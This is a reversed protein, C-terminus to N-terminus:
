SDIIIAAKTGDHFRINYHANDRHVENGIDPHVSTPRDGTPQWNSDFQRPGYTLDGRYTGDPQKWLPNSHGAESPHVPMRSSNIHPRLEPMHNILARAEAVSSVHVDKGARLDEIQERQKRTPGKAENCLGFPDWCHVPNTGYAYLNLGGATGIPDPSIYKGTDPDYYRHRNYHLGSEKDEYQGPFRFNCTIRNTDAEFARGWGSFASSWAKNGKDDLIEMPTGLQDSVVSYIRGGEVAYIPTFYGPEYVWTSITGTPKVEHIIVNGDWYFKTIEDGCRKAIRRGFPDYEYHWEKGDPDTLRVLQDDANWRYSWELSKGAFESSIKRILRGNGDYEFSTGDKAIVQNGLSHSFASKKEGSVLSALNGRADYTFFEAAGRDREIRVLHESLDFAYRTSGSAMDTTEDLLGEKSYSFRRHPLEVKAEGSPYSDDVQAVKSEILRGLADFRQSLAVFGPLRRKLLDGYPNRETSFGEGNIELEEFYGNANNKFNLTLGLSTTKQIPMRNIDLRSEVSFEGVTEKILEGLDNYEFSVACSGNEATTMNGHPGYAFKSVRGDPLTKGVLRGALDYELSIREQMGNIIGVQNGSIDYIFQLVRGDPGKEEIVRVAKDHKFRYASGNEDIKALLQGPESGWEFKITSGDPRHESLIRSCTGYAFKWSKEGERRAIINGGADYEYSILTGDAYKLHLVRGLIDRKYQTVNGLPGKKASLRGFADMEYSTENGMWDTSVQLDGNQGYGKRRISGSPSTISLINGMTDYAFTWKLGSPDATYLMRGVSDYEYKWIKGLPDEITLPHHNQNFTKKISQGTPGTVRYRNGEADYEYKTSGAGASIIEVIRGHEDYATKEMGGFPDIALIVQGSPLRQYKTTGGLSNTVETWGIHDLYRIVKLDYNGLGWTRICRGKEDYKYTFLGGDKATERVLRSAADYQYRDTYGIANNASILRSESDFAYQLLSELRGDSHQFNIGSVKGDPGNTLVLTRKELRQRIGRLQAKENWALDLGQGTPDEISALPWLQGHRGPQFVYRVVKGTDVDWRTVKLNFGSKQLELFTGLDRLVKGAEISDKPDPFVVLGGDPAHFHYDKDIRTLKAFYQNTWGLGIPSAKRDLLGTSFKRGWELPFRGPIHIDSYELNVVGSAVDVPM